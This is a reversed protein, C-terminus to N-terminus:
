SRAVRRHRAEIFGFAAYGLLGLALVTLLVRGWPAAGVTRLAGDLGVTESPDVRVAALVLFAGVLTWVVARACLGAVATTTAARRERVSMEGLALQERYEGRVGRWVSRVAAVLYGLGVAGVLARGLPLQMLRATSDVEDLRDDGGTGSVLRMAGLAISAYLLGRLVYGARRGIEIAREGKPRRAGLPSVARLLRWAAYCACGLAVAILLARGFPQHAITELAGRKDAPEGRRGWAVQIALLAVIGHLLARTLLGYRAVRELTRPKVLRSRSAMRM